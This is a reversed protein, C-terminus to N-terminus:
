FAQHFSGHGTVGTSQIGLFFISTMMQEVTVSHGEVVAISADLHRPPQVFMFYIVFFCNGLHKHTLLRRSVMMKELFHTKLSIIFKHM